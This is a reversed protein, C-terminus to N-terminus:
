DQPSALGVMDPLARVFDAYAEDQANDAIRGLEVRLALQDSKGLALLSAAINEMGRVATDPNVEDPGAHELLLFADILGRILPVYDCIM